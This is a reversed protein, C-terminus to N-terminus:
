AVTTGSTMGNEQKGCRLSRQLHLSVENQRVSDVSNQDDFVVALIAISNKHAANDV